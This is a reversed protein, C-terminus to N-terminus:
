GEVDNARNAGERAESVSSLSGVLIECRSLGIVDGAAGRRGRLMFPSEIWGGNRDDLEVARSVPSAEGANMCGVAVPFAGTAKGALLFGLRKLKFVSARSRTAFLCGSNGFDVAMGGISCLRARLCEVEVGCISLPRLEDM